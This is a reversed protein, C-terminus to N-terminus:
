NEFRQEQWKVDKILVKDSEVIVNYDPSDKIELDLVNKVKNKFPQNTYMIDKPFTYFRETILEDNIYIRYPINNEDCKLTVKIFM